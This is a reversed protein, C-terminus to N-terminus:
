LKKSDLLKDFLTGIKAEEGLLFSYRRPNSFLKTVRKGELKLDITILSLRYNDANDSVFFVLAKRKSFNAMIKFAERSLTVRPDHESKHKMEYVSIDLSDSKGLYIVRTIKNSNFSIDSTANEEEVQFDNPLLYNQFFDLYSNRDYKQNFITKMKLNSRKQVVVKCTTEKLDDVYLTSTCKPKLKM